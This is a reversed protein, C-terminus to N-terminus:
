RQSWPLTLSARSHWLRRLGILSQRLQGSAAGSAFSQNSPRPAPMFADYFHAYRDLFRMSELATMEHFRDKVGKNFQGVMGKDAFVHEVRATDVDVGLAGALRQIVAAMDFCIDNYAIRQVPALACWARLTEVQDDLSPWCDFVTRCESFEPISWRRSRRGHDVMSLAIERPDRLSATALIEGRAVKDLVAPAPLQHTKIVVDRGQAATEIRHILDLDINDFYNTVSLAPRLPPPLIRPNYGGQRLMEETLQYALTSASKLMGYSLHIV